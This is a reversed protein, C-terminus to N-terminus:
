MLRNRSRCRIRFHLRAGLGRILMDRRLYLRSMELSRFIHYTASILEKKQGAKERAPESVLLLARVKLRLNGHVSDMRPLLLALSPPRSLAATFQYVM